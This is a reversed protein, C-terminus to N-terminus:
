GQGGRGVRGHKRRYQGKGGNMEEQPFGVLKEHKTYLDSRRHLREQDRAKTSQKLWSIMMSQWRLLYIRFDWPNLGTIEWECWLRIRTSYSEKTARRWCHSLSGLQAMESNDTELPASSVSFAQLICLQRLNSAIWWKWEREWQHSSLWLAVFSRCPSWFIYPFVHVNPWGQEAM